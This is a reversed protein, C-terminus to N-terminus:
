RFLQTWLLAEDGLPGRRLELALSVSGLHLRAEAGLAYANAPAAEPFWRWSGKALFAVRDGALVRLMGSPGVGPRFGSGALGSLRPTAALEGDLTAVATLTSGFATVGPGAGLEVKGAFCGPCGQDRLAEGGGRLRWSFRRDFRGFENISGLELLWAEDLRIAEDAPAYRVRIRGMEIQMRPSFGAPPDLLDHLAARVEVASVFGDVSAAGAGLSLRLSGHGREPGGFPPPAVDLPPSALPVQSRRSLLAERLQVAREDTRLLIAKGSRVDVLDVAADLVRAREHAGWGQPLAGGPDHVLLEISRLSPEELGAVRAEFQTRISPRWRIRRVAGSAVVAKVTDAPVTIKRIRSILELRPAAVELAGLVHYSCNETVYWYDFWTGGLEWLHAVLMAVEGPELDLDYEWLDRSEYDAYERVKYFYPRSSFVGRFGGFLGNIAYTIPNSTAVTAGYDAGQDLLEYREGTGPAEGKNLRLFTHGFASAPNNLYYSSFVLTVSRAQVRRWFAELRPCPQLPLRAPDIGGLRAGFFALRAPFRCQPHMEEPRQPQDPPAEAAAPPAFFAAITAELEAGPDGKGAPSLFFAPGDAESKWGGWMTTRWHGLRVWQPDSALNRARAAAILEDRYSLDPALAAAPPAHGVEPAEAAGGHGAAVSAALLVVAFIM